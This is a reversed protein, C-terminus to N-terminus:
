AFPFDPTAETARVINFEPSTSFLSLDTRAAGGIYQAVEVWGVSMAVCIAWDEPLTSQTSNASDLFRSSSSAIRGTKRLKASEHDLFL